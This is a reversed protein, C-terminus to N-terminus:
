EITDFFSLDIKLGSLTYVAITDESMYVEATTYKGSENLIFVQVIKDNPHVIWYERVGHKEYLALKVTLDKRATHPSLIEAIFDPAGRAGKEDLKSKDCFVAIDPQVVTDIKEDSENKQPLRVDFPAFFVKCDSNDMIPMIQRLIERAFEQHKRSPAPSMNYAVGDILEWREDDDWQLYDAYTFHEELKVAVAM